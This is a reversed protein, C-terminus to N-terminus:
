AARLKERIWEHVLDSDSLGKQRAIQEISEFENTELNVHMSICHEFVKGPVEELAETYDTLEHNDWFEAMEHISDTNPIEAKKM